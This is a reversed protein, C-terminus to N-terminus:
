ISQLDLLLRRRSLKWRRLLPSNWLRGVLLFDLRHTRCSSYRACVKVVLAEISPYDDGKLCKYNDIDIDAVVVQKALRENDNVGILTPVRLGRLSLLDSWFPQEASQAAWSHHHSLSVGAGVGLLSAKPLTVTIGAYRLRDKDYFIKDGDGSGSLSPYQVESIIHEILDRMSISAVGEHKTGPAGLTSLSALIGKSLMGYHVTDLAVQDNVSSSQFSQRLWLEASVLIPQEKGTRGWADACAKTTTQLERVSVVALPEDAAAKVQWTTRELSEAM